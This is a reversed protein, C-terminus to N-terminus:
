LPLKAGSQVSARRKVASSLEASIIAQRPEGAAGRSARRELAAAARPTRRRRLQEMRAWTRRQETWLTPGDVTVPEDQVLVAAAALCPEVM